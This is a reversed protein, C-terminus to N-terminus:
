YEGKKDKNLIERLATKADQIVFFISSRDFMGICTKGKNILTKEFIVFSYKRVYYPVEHYYYKIGYMEQSLKKSKKILKKLKNRISKSFSINLIPGNSSKEVKFTARHHKLQKPKTANM